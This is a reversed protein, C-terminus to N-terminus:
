SPYLWSNCVDMTKWEDLGWEPNASPPCKWLNVSKLAYSMTCARPILGYNGEFDFSYGAALLEPTTLDIDFDCGPLQIDDTTNIEYYRTKNAVLWYEGTVNATHIYDPTSIDSRLWGAGEFYLAVDVDPLENANVDRTEGVIDGPVTIVMQYEDRICSKYSGDEGFYYELWADDMDPCLPWENIGPTATIPVTVKYMVSINTGASFPGALMIETKNGMANVHLASAPSGDIWCWTENVQVEWGDPALDTLGISNFGDVPATFNVYVDFTDGPYTENPMLAVGPLDRMVDITVTVTMEYEGIVCSTCPGLEGFYYELWAKSCDDLPFESIGPEADDPVTVKYMASFSTGNAYTGYWLIETKNGIAKVADANPTCWAKDVAVEWGAPALDTLGIANFEDVPATFNVYVDFTDGPYTENPMLAVDPLNRIVNIPALILPMYDKNSGGTINYPTDGFGDGNTDNGTYDSWYNGGLYPGGVINPGAGNTTNWANNENDWANNTNNFYNNYITNASSLWLYIGYDTNNSATNSTLTSNSSSYLSIGCDTNNSATNSTLTSNSSSYLSIGRFNNSATNNALTNNSTIFLEIGLWPNNSATNDRLTNNSSSDRLRIGHNHNSGATNDSLTNNTSYDLRIGQDNSSATNNALINNSSYSLQIGYYNNTVNNSSINCRDASGLYIGAMNSGTANEVTFGTINVWNATVNFVHDNSSAANVVTNAPNGSTSRITLQKYVDVNENYTGPDVTITHGNTTNAADIAAQITSFNEGTNLNHVPPPPPTGLWLYTQGASSGSDEDYPAGILFDDRGDGNVDGACAVSHGSWDNSDEGWFSADANSLDTDPAFAYVIGAFAFLSGAVLFTVLLWVIGRLKRQNM